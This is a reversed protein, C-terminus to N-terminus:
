CAKKQHRKGPCCFRYTTSMGTVALDGSLTVSDGDFDVAQVLGSLDITSTNEGNGVPHDLPNVLTFTWVGTGENLTLTFVEHIGDAAPNRDPDAIRGGGTTITATNILSGHSDLGLGAIWTSALGM